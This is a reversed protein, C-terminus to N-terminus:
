FKDVIKLFFYGRFYYVLYKLKKKLVSAVMKISLPGKIVFIGPLGNFTIM